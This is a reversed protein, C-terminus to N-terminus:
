TCGATTVFQVVKGCLFTCLWSPPPPADASFSLMPKKKCLGGGKKNALIKPLLLTKMHVFALLVPVSTSYCRWFATFTLICINKLLESLQEKFVKADCYSCM